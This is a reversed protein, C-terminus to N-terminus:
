GPDLYSCKCTTQHNLAKAKILNQVNVSPQITSHNLRSRTRFM